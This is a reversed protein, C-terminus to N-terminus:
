VNILSARLKDLNLAEAIVLAGQQGLNDAMFEQLNMVSSYYKTSFWKKAVRPNDRGIDGPNGRWTNRGTGYNVYIGYHNFSQELRVNTFKDSADMKVAIASRYLAGTRFVDLKLMREKWIKIMTSNWATVYARRAEYKKESSDAPTM